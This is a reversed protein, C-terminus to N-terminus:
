RSRVPQTAPKTEQNEKRGAFQFAPPEQRGEAERAKKAEPTETGYGGVLPPCSPPTALQEPTFMSEPEKPDPM